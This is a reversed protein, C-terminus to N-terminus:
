SRIKKIHGEYLAHITDRDDVYEKPLIDASKYGLRRALKEQENPDAPLTSVSKNEWRRLATEARRLFEYSRIAGAAETDSLLDRERLQRLAGDWNPNWIGHKMQLAQVFFEAEIMGGAGTKFDLHNNGTGRERRIRELMNDIKEFLDPQQGAE